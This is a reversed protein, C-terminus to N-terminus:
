QYHFNVQARTTAPTIWLKSDFGWGPHVLKAGCQLVHPRYPNDYSPTCILNRVGSRDKEPLPQQTTLIVLDAWVDPDSYSKEDPAPHRWDAMDIVQGRSDVGSVVVSKFSYDCRGPLIADFYVLATYHTGSWTLKLPIDTYFPGRIGALWNISVSCDPNKAVWRASMRIKMAADVDGSLVFYQAAAQNAFPYDRDGPDKRESKVSACCSISTFLAMLTALRILKNM